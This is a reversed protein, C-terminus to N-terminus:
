GDSSRTDYDELTKGQRVIGEAVVFKEIRDLREWDLDAPPSAEFEQVKDLVDTHVFRAFEGCADCSVSLHSVDYDRTVTHEFCNSCRYSVTTVIAISRVADTHGSPHRCPLGTGSGVTM